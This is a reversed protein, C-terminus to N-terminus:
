ELYGLGRLREKLAAEDQTSYDLDRTKEQEFQHPEIKVPNDRLFRPDFM